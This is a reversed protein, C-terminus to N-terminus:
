RQYEYGFCQSLYMLLLQVISFRYFGRLDWCGAVDITAWVPYQNELIYDMARVSVEGGSFVGVFYAM